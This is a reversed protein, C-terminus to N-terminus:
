PATENRRARQCPWLHSCFGPKRSRRYSGEVPAAAGRRAVAAAVGPHGVLVAEIEGPEIRFGRVKVQADVRGLYLLQGDARWAAVDGTRYLRGRFSVTSEEHTNGKM